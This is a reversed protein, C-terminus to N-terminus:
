GAKAEMRAFAGRMAVVPSGAALIVGSAHCLRGGLRVRDIQSELWDGPAAPSLFDVTLSATVLRSGEPLRHYVNYALFIDALTALFGGHTTAYGNCHEPLVAVRFRLHSEEPRAFLRVIGSVFPGHMPAVRFGEAIWAQEMPTHESM